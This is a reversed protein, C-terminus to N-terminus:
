AVVKERWWFRERMMCVDAVTHCGGESTYEWVAASYMGTDAVTCEMQQGPVQCVLVAGYVNKEMKGSSRTRFIGRCTTVEVNVGLNGRVRLRSPTMRSRPVASTIRASVDM